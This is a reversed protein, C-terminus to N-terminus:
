VGSGLGEECPAARLSPWTERGVPELLKWGREEGVGIVTRLLCQPILTHCRGRSSSEGGHRWATGAKVFGLETGPVYYTSLLRTRSPRPVPGQRDASM